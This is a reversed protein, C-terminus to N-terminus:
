LKSRQEIEIALAKARQAVEKPVYVEKGVSKSERMNFSEVKKLLYIEDGKKDLVHIDLGIYVYDECTNELDAHWEVTNSHQGTKTSVLEQKNLKVCDAWSIPAAAFFLLLICILKM